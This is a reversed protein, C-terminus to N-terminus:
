DEDQEFYRDEYRGSSGRVWPYTKIDRADWDLPRKPEANRKNDSSHKSGIDRHSEVNRNTQKRENEM